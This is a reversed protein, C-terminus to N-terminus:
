VPLDGEKPADTAALKDAALKDAALKDDRKKDAAADSAIQKIRAADPKVEVGGWKTVTEAYEEDSIPVFSVITEPAVLYELKSKHSVGEAQLKGPSSLDSGAFIVYKLYKM